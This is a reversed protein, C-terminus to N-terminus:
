RSQLLRELEEAARGARWGEAVARGATRLRARLADDDLADMLREGLEVAHDPPAFLAFDRRPSFALFAPISTMVVCVGAALAEAAVLGLPDPPRNPAVLIDCTHLLRTMERATLAVHFEQVADLPEERSPAWPSVRILEFEHHFWRAAAAAAYGDDVGKAEAQSAGYLLVRPPENTRPIRDRYVDEDVVPKPDLNTIVVEDERPAYLDLADVYVWEARSARWTLPLGPTVCRVEHGRATLADALALQVRAAGGIGTDEFLFAIRM